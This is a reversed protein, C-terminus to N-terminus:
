SGAEAERLDRRAQERAKKEEARHNVDPKIDHTADGLSQGSAMRTKLQDFPIGLNHSVHAAAVFEGLNKFGAAAQPLNAGAPFFKELKSSLKTNAALHEAPTRRVADPNREARGKVRDEPRAEPRGAGRQGIDPRHPERPETVGSPGGRTGSTGPGGQPWSSVSPAGGSYGGPGRGQGRQAFAPVCVAVITFLMTAAKM